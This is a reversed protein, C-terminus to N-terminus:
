WPRRRARCARRRCAAASQSRPSSSPGRTRTGSNMSCSIYLGLFARATCPTPLPSRFTSPRADSLRGHLTRPFARPQLGACSCPPRSSRRTCRRINAGGSYASAQGASAHTTPTSLATNSRQGGFTVLPTFRQGRHNANCVWGTGCADCRLTLPSVRTLWRMCAHSRSTRQFKTLLRGRSPQPPRLAAAGAPRARHTPQRGGAAPQAAHRDSFALSAAPADALLTTQM